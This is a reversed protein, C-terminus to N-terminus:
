RRRQWWQWCWRCYWQADTHRWGEDSAHGCYSCSLEQPSAPATAEAEAQDVRQQAAAVKQRLGLYKHGRRTQGRWPVPPELYWERCCRLYCPPVSAEYKELEQHARDEKLMARRLARLRAGEVGPAVVEDMRAAVRAHRRAENAVIGLQRRHKASDDRAHAAQADVLLAAQDFDGRAVASSLQQAEVVHRALPDAPDLPVGAAALHLLVKTHSGRLAAEEAERLAAAALLASAGRDVSRAQLRLLAQVVDAAGRAASQVLVDGAGEFTGIPPLLWGAQEIEGHRLLTAFRDHLSFAQPLRALARKDGDQTSILLAVQMYDFFVMYTTYPPGYGTTARSWPDMEIGRATPQSVWTVYMPVELDEPRTLYPTDQLRQSLTEPVPVLFSTIQALVPLPLRSRFLWHVDTSMWPAAHVRCSGQTFGTYRSPGPTDSVIVPQLKTMLGLQQAALFVARDAGKLNGPNRSGLLPYEHKLMVGLPRRPLEAAALLGALARELCPSPSMPRPPPPADGDRILMYTLVVRCGQVPSVRHQCSAFFAGWRLLPDPQNKFGLMEMDTYEHNAFSLTETRGQHMVTLEGGSHADLLPLCIVLSGVHQADRATDVHFTDSHDGSRDVLLKQLHMAVPMGHFLSERITRLFSAEGGTMLGVRRVPESQRPGRGKFQRPQILELRRNHYNYAYDGQRPDDELVVHLSRAPVERVSSAASDRRDVGHALDGFSAPQLCAGLRSLEKSHCPFRLEVPEGDPRSVRVKVVGGHLPVVGHTCFSDDSEDIAEALAQLETAVAARGRDVWAQGARTRRIGEENVFIDFEKNFPRPPRGDLDSFAM